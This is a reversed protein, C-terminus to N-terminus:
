ETKSPPPWKGPQITEQTRRDVPSVQQRLILSLFVSTAAIIAGTQQESVQLGFGAGLALAAKLLQVFASGWADSTYVAVVLALLASVAGVILGTQESTLNLVSFAVLLGLLAEVAGVWAAPERGFIKKM